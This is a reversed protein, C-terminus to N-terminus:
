ARMLAHWGRVRSPGRPIHGPGHTPDWWTHAAMDEGGHARLGGDEMGDVWRAEAGCKVDDAAGSVMATGLGRSDQSRTARGAANGAKITAVYSNGHGSPRGPEVSAEGKEHGPQGQDVRTKTRSRWM